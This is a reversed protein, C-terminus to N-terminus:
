KGLCFEAFIVDLVSEVDVRGTIRGLAQAASRLEEAALEIETARGMRRLAAVCARLGEQHRERTPGATERMSFRRELAAEMEARLRDLGFGSRASVAIVGEGIFGTGKDSRLDCKSLVVLDDAGSRADAVQVGGGGTVGDHVFIRLDANDARAQARRVGEAEVEDATEQVGATDCLIVPFGGMDLPVELVDRTTGPRPSVIAVERQALANVLTSKGANPAGVVVVEIGERLRRARAAQALHREIDEALGATEAEVEAQLDLPIDEDSFDIAVELHAQARLLRQRWGEYLRALGGDLQRLAQRRQAATEAAVLDGIAEAATLDFKGNVVARRTFEGPEASRLGPIVGLAELVGTIVSRGGHLHFEGVDEGTFSGPGPFWLVLGEDLLEGGQDVVRRRTARRAPPLPRGTMREVARAAAPGSVRVVAIGARVRGTALAFITDDAM